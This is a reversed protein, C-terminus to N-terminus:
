LKTMAAHLHKFGVAQAHPLHFQVEEIAQGTEDITKLVQAPMLQRARNRIIVGLAEQTDEGIVAAGSAGVLAPYSIELLEVGKLDGYDETTVQVINGQRHIPRFQPPNRQHSDSFEMSLVRRNMAPSTGPAKVRLSGLEDHAAIPALALDVSMDVMWSDARISIMQKRENEFIASTPGAVGTVVHGATVLAVRDDLEGIFCSGLFAGVKLPEYPLPAQYLAGSCTFPNPMAEITPLKNM